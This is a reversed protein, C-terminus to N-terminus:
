VHVVTLLLYLLHLSLIVGANQLLLFPVSPLTLWPDRKCTSPIMFVGTSHIWRTEVCWSASPGWSGPISDESRQVGGYRVRCIEEGADKVMDKIIHYLIIYGSLPSGQHNLHYLNWRGICSVGTWDRPQSSERSSFLAVWALIRAQSIRHVSSGLPSCDM